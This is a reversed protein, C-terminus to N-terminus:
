EKEKVVITFATGATRDLVITGFLQEVLSKVLRIGLSKANHWDFDAPLGVGDDRYLLTLTHDQRQITVSIEGKRGGPFAHKLSNSILENLILGVAIATNIDLTISQIDTTLVIRKEKIDYFRLLSNGLYRVYDDLDIKAIDESQCLKEHVLAMARIRNQSERIVQSIKEDEVYRSQLNLLSIIIQLNNKVRHHIERLLLVKEDLSARIKNESNKRETIDRVTAQLIQKKKWEFRTLLVTAPFEGGNMRKHTWEFYNSGERVAKEIMEKAKEGSPRGDPQYEPSLDWPAASTFEPEDKACFMALAAPNGSTFRWDPPELTMIADRSSEFLLRHRLENERLAATKEEIGQQLKKNFELLAEEARKIDTIDEITSLSHPKKGKIILSTSIRCIRFEGTKIRVKMEMGDVSGQKRLLAIMREHEATDAFIGLKEATKGIIEQLSFGTNRVFTDNVDVFTGDAASVITLAVPSNRFAAAFTNESERLAEEAQKRKTIDRISHVAGVLTRAEDLIPDVVVIFWRGDFELEMTERQLSVKMRVYPCGPIPGTTGHVVEWCHRGIIDGADKIGFIELMMHNCMKIRQGADFLCIGDQASDFTTQWDLAAKKLAAEARKRESIDFASGTFGVVTGKADRLVALLLHVPFEKESKSRLRAETEHWGKVRVQPQIEETLFLLQDKPYILSVPKGLVEEASYGFMKEAGRNWGVIFGKLDTSIIAEHVQDIIQAQRQMTEDAQKRGSINKTFVAIGGASPYAEIEFFLHKGGLIYENVFSRPQHTRIVEKYVDVARLTDPTDSFIEYITKGIADQAPIGTLEESAKNWYTYRLDKDMAFFIDTISDALDRYREESKKLEEEVKKRGTINQMTGNISVPSGDRLRHAVRGKGAVWIWEGSAHRMRHESEFLPTRGELCDSLRKQILPIDDPHALANWDTIHSGIDQKRYGLIQAARDDIAGRMTPIDLEWMGTESGSLAQHLNVEGEPLAKEVENNPPREPRETGAGKKVPVKKKKAAM